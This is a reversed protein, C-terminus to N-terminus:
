QRQANDVDGSLNLAWGLLWLRIEEEPEAPDGDRLNVSFAPKWQKIGMADRRVSEFYFWEKSTEVVRVGSHEYVVRPYPYAM